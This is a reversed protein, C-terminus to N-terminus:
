PAGNKAWNAGRGCVGLEEKTGIHVPVDNMKIWSRSHCSPTSPFSVLDSHWFLLTIHRRCFLFISPFSLLFFIWKSFHLPRYIPFYGGRGPPFYWGTMQPPPYYSIPLLFLFLTFICSLFSSLPFFSFSFSFILLLLTFYTCFLSSNLCIPCSPTLFCHAASPFFKDNDFLPPPYIM